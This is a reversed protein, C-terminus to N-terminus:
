GFPTAFGIRYCSIKESLKTRLGKLWEPEDKPEEVGLARHLKAFTLLNHLRLFLPILNLEEQTVCKATRYGRVFHQVSDSQLDINGPSDGFLDRLAFAIDASFWCYVSDDFDLAAVGNKSWVINDLEYDFHVLGYNEQNISLRALQKRLDEATALAAVESGPLCDLATALKEQITQRGATQYGKSAQHLEGLARGWRAFIGPDAHEIDLQEGALEEFATAHFIGLPTQVSEVLRGSQSPTPASVSLGKDLLHNLFTTEALVADASRETSHNFRLFNKKGSIQFTFLFNASARLYQARGEEHDWRSLIEDAIPSEWQDNMTDVVAKMTSLKMM